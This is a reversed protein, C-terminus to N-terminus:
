SEVMEQLKRFFANGVKDEDGFYSMNLIVEGNFSIVTCGYPSSVRPTLWCRFDAIYPLMEEPFKLVGLNTLTLSSNSEGFFRYGIRLAASKLKWPIMRFLPNTQTKVNYAVMSTLSEKSLQQKLQDGFVKCLAEMPLDKQSVEMTPLTYLSFNRLTRSGVLRRLDVPVMIRVPKLGKSGKEKLQMEMVTSALVTTLLTNLTVGYRHALDLLKKTSITIDHSRVQWDDSSTRPPLYSFRSPLHRAPADTMKLFDDSVEEQQPEALPDLRTLSVPVELGHREKLYEAILTTITTLGGYGDTM